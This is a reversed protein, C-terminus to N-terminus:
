SAGLRRLIEYITTRSVGAADALETVSGRAHFVALIARDLDGRADDLGRQADAVKSLAVAIQERESDTLPRTLVRSSQRM